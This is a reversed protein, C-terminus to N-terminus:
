GVLFYLIIVPLLNHVFQVLPTYSVLPEGQKPPKGLKPLNGVVRFKSFHIVVTIRSFQFIDDIHYPRGDTFSMFNQDEALKDSMQGDDFIKKQVFSYLKGIQIPM